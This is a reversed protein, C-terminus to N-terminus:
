VVKFDFSTIVNFDGSLIKKRGQFCAGRISYMFKERFDRRDKIYLDTRLGGIEPKEHLVFNIGRYIGEYSGTREFLLKLLLSPISSSILSTPIEDCTEMGFLAYFGDVDERSIQHDYFGISDGKEAGDNSKLLDSKCLAVVNGESNLCELELGGNKKSKKRFELVNNPYAPNRFKLSYQVPNFGLDLAFLEFYAHLLTGPIPTDEFGHDKAIERNTHIPNRDGVLDVFRLIMGEDVCVTLNGTEKDIEYKSM